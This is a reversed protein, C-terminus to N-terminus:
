DFVGPALLEHLHSRLDHDAVHVLDRDLTGRLHQELQKGLLPRLTGLFHPPAVLGFTAFTGEQLLGVLAHAFQAAAEDHATTKPGMASRTGPAGAKSVRGGADTTLDQTRLRGDANELSRVLVLPREHASMSFIRAGAADAIVIWHNMTSGKTLSAGLM